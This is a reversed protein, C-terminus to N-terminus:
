EDSPMQVAADKSEEKNRKDLVAKYAEMFDNMHQSDSGFGGFLIFLMAIWWYSDTSQKPKKELLEAAKCITCRDNSSLYPTDKMFRLQAAVHEEETLPTPAFRPIDDPATKSSM